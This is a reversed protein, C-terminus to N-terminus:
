RWEFIEPHTFWLVAVVVVAVVTICLDLIGLARAARADRPEPEGDRAALARAKRAFVLALTGLVPQTVFIGVVGLIRATRAKREAETEQV